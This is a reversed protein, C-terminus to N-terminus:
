NDKTDGLVPESLGLKGKWYGSYVVAMPNNGLVRDKVALTTVPGPCAAAFLADHGVCLGASIFLECGADALAKAQYKPNCMTEVPADKQVRKLGLVDKSVGCNKCCASYTELGQQELYRAFLAAEERIGICFALGVKKYKMKRAFDATEELRTHKMYYTAEVYAAAQMIKKEEPTYLGLVDDQEVPTCSRGKKMCMHNCDCHACNGLM